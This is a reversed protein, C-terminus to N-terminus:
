TMTNTLYNAQEIHDENAYKFINTTSCLITATSFDCCIIYMKSLMWNVTHKNLFESFKYCSFEPVFTLFKSNKNVTNLSDEWHLWVPKSDRRWKVVSLFFKALALITFISSLAFKSKSPKGWKIVNLSHLFTGQLSLFHCM